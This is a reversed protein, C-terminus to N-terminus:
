AFWQPAIIHYFITTFMCHNPWCKSKSTCHSPLLLFFASTSLGLLVCLCPLSSFMSTCHVPLVHLYTLGTFCLPVTAQYYFINASTSFGLLVCLRLPSSFMSTCHVVLVHLYLSCHVALISLHLTTEYFMSTCRVPFCPPVTSLYFISTCHPRTFCQPVSSALVPTFISFYVHALSPRYNWDLNLSCPNM